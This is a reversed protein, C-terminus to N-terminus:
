DEAVEELFQPQEIKCIENINGAAGWYIKYGNLEGDETVEKWLQNDDIDRFGDNWIEEADELSTAHDAIVMMVEESTERNDGTAVFEDAEDTSSWPRAARLAANKQSYEVTLYDDVSLLLESFGKAERGNDDLFDENGDAEYTVVSEYRAIDLCKEFDTDSFDSEQQVVITYEGRNGNEDAAVVDVVVNVLNASWTVPIEADRFRPTGDADHEHFVRVTCLERRKESSMAVVRDFDILNFDDHHSIKFSKIAKISMTQNGLKKHGPM